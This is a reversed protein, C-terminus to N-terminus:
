PQYCFLCILAHFKNLISLLCILFIINFASADCYVFFHEYCMLFSKVSTKSMHFTALLSVRDIINVKLLNCM